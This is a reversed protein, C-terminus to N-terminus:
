VLHAHLITMNLQSCNSMIKPWVFTQKSSSHLLLKRNKTLYIIQFRTLGKYGYLVFDHTSHLDHKYNIQVSAISRNQLHRAMHLTKILCMEDRFCIRSQTCFFLSMSLSIVLHFSKFTILTGINRFSLLFMMRISLLCYIRNTCAIYFHALSNIVLFNDGLHRSYLKVM